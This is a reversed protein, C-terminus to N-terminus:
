GKVRNVPLPHDPLTGSVTKFVYIYLPAGHGDMGSGILFGLDLFRHLRAENAARLFHEIGPQFMQTLSRSRALRRGLGFIEYFEELGNPAYEGVLFHIGKEAAIRRGATGYVQRSRTEERCWYEM